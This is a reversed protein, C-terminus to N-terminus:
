LKKITETISILAHSTSTGARFGFQNPFIISHLDLFTNLRNAMLKEIIKSFSSLLSIPRYNNVDKTSGNKHIPIVKAIKNKEPFVGETFSLNCIDSFTHSIENSIVKLMKTPICSPGSSKSEDLTNIIDNIEKPTTPSILFSYPVRSKLFFSPDRNRKPNPIDKDLQPGIKTFFDNFANAMGDNTNIQKNEYFLQSVKPKIKNNLNIIEKIGQWTKKM